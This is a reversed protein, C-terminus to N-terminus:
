LREEQVPSTKETETVHHYWWFGAVGVVLLLLLYGFRRARKPASQSIKKNLLELPQRSIEAALGSTEFANLIEHVENESLGLIRAYGRLYGIAYADAGISKYDDQEIQTLRQPSLKLQEAVEELSRNKAERMIRLSAGPGGRVPSPSMESM